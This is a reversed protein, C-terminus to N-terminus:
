PKLWESSFRGDSTGTDCSIKERHNGAGVGPQAGWRLPRRCPSIGRNRSRGKKTKILIVANM